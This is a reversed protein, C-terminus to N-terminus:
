RESSVSADAYRPAPGASRAGYVIGVHLGYQDHIRGVHDTRHRVPPPPVPGPRGPPQAVRQRLHGLPPQGVYRSRKMHNEDDFARRVTNPDVDNLGPRYHVSSQM